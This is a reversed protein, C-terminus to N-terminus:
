KKDRIIVDMITETRQLRKKLRQAHKNWIQSYRASNGDRPMSFKNRRIYEEVIFNWPKKNRKLQLYYATGVITNTFKVRQVGFTKKHIDRIQQFMLDLNTLEGAIAIITQEGAIPATVVKGFWDEPISQTEGTLLFIYLMNAMSDIQADLLQYIMQASQKIQEFFGEMPLQLEQPFIALDKKYDAKVAKQTSLYQKVFNEPFIVDLIELVRNRMERRFEELSIIEDGHYIEEIPDDDPGIEPLNYKERTAEIIPVLDPHSPLLDGLFKAEKM